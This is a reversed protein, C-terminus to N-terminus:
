GKNALTILVLNAIIFLSLVIIPSRKDFSEAKANDGIEAIRLSCVSLVLTALIFLFTLDHIQDVFSFSISSPINNDMVYKNGFAAFLGGISLGFRQDRAPPVFFVLYAVAFSFYLGILLKFFLGWYDRAISVQYTIRSYSSKGHLLREGFDSNYPAITERSSYGIIHWGPLHMEQYIRFSGPATKLIMKGTDLGAELEILLNQRDFPYNKLQWDHILTLKATESALQMHQDAEAYYQDFFDSQKANIIETNKLPDFARNKFDFWLWCSATYAYDEPKLDYINKLDLGAYCTDKQAPKAVVPILLLFLVLYKKM